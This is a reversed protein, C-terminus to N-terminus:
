GSYPQEVVVLNFVVTWANGGGVRNIRFLVTETYAKASRNIDLVSPVQANGIGSGVDIYGYELDTESGSETVGKWLTAEPLAEKSDDIPTKLAQSGGTFGNAAKLVDVTYENESLTLDREFVLVKKNAPVELAFVYSDGTSDAAIGDTRASLLGPVGFFNYKHWRETITTM